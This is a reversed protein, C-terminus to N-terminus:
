ITHVIQGLVILKTRGNEVESRHDAMLFVIVFVCARVCDILWDILWNNMYIGKPMHVCLFFFMCVYLVYIVYMDFVCIFCLESFLSSLEASAAGDAIVVLFAVM